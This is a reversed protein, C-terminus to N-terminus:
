MKGVAKLIAEKETYHHKVGNVEQYDEHGKGLLIVIDGKRANEIAFKVAEERDYVIEYKGGSKEMGVLIDKVIDEIKETRPNDATIVSLDSHAGVEEGMEYRRLKSRNGGCGFVSIIRNPKYERLTELVSKSSVGNHAFDIFVSFDDSVKVSEVRGNINVVKLADKSVEPDVGMMDCLAIASVANYCNFRGPLGITIEENIKGSIGCKMSLDGTKAVHEVNVIRYDVGEGTGFTEKQCKAKDYMYQSNENDMNFLGYKSQNFLMAKCDRYEEFTEHEGKGIHDPYLNTFLAYDYNVGYVRDMKFAQSSVEMIAYEVGADVMESFYKQLEYSEPTTHESKQTKGDIYIGITGIVGCKHGAAELIQRIMHVVSSKGKTGTVGVMTMKSAPHDFLNASMASLVPRANKVKVVAVDGYGVEVDKEIVVAKAGQKIAMEIFKHGDTVVGEIAVFVFGDKVKRSDYAIDTVEVAMDGNIKEYEVGKLIDEFRM